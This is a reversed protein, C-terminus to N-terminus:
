LLLVVDNAKKVRMRKHIYLSTEWACASRLIGSDEVSVESSIALVTFCHWKGWQVSNNNQCIYNTKM